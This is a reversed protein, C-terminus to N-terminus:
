NLLSDCIQKVLETDSWNHLVTVVVGVRRYRMYAKSYHVFLIEPVVEM